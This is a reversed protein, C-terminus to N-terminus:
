IKSAVTEVACHLVQALPDTMALIHYSKQVNYGTRLM